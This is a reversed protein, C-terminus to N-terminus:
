GEFFNAIDLEIETDWEHSCETCTAHVSTNMGHESLAEVRERIQNYDDKNISSLWETILEKNNITTGETTTVSLICNAVLRITLDTIEVFTQGFAQNRVEEDELTTLQEILKAQKVQQIQMITRDELSYPKLAISFGNDLKIVNDTTNPTVSALLKNSDYALLNLHDCKPCKLDLEMDPGNSAIRIALLLVLLDNVPIREPEGIDPCCSQLLSVTAEGNFLADPTKSIIEDRATMPYIAIEGDVSMKPKTEYYEGNSPLSVYLKPKRYASILPNSSM